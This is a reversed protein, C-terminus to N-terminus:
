LPNGSAPNELDWKLQSCEGLRNAPLGWASGAFPVLDKCFTRQSRGYDPPLPLENSQM